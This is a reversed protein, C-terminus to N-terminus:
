RNSNLAKRRALEEKLPSTNKYKFHRITNELHSETMDKLKIEIWDKTTHIGSSWEEETEDDGLFWWVWSFDDSM